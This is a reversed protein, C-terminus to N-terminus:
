KYSCQAAAASCENNCRHHSDGALAASGLRVAAVMPHPAVASGTRHKRAVTCCRTRRLLSHLGAVTCHLVYHPAAFLAASGCCLAGRLCVCVESIEMRVMHALHSGGGFPPHSWKYTGLGLHVRLAM